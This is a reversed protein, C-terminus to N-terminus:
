DSSKPVPLTLAREMLVFEVAGVATAFEDDAAMQYLELARSPNKELGGRGEEYMLALAARTGRLSRADLLWRVAEADNQEVGQGALYMWALTSIAAPNGSEAARIAGQAGGAYRVPMKAAVALTSNIAKHFWSMAEHEDKVVGIGRAYCRGLLEQGDPDGALASERYRRSAEVADQKLCLGKEYMVADIKGNPARDAPAKANDKRIDDAYGTCVINIQKLLQQARKDGAEAAVKLQDIQSPAMSPEIGQAPVTAGLFIVYGLRVAIQRLRTNRSPMYASYEVASRWWKLNTSATRMSLSALVTLFRSSAHM